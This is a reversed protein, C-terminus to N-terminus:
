FNAFVGPLFLRLQFPDDIRYRLNYKKTCGRVLYKYLKEHRPIEFDQITVFVSELLSSTQPQRFVRENNLIEPSFHNEAPFYRAKKKQRLDSDPGIGFIETKSLSRTTEPETGYSGFLVTRSCVENEALAGEAARDPEEVRCLTSRSEQPPM